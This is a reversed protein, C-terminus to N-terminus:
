KSARAKRAVGLGLLALGVLALSGPEPIGRVFDIALDLEASGATGNGVNVLMQIATVNTFDAGLGAGTTFSAFSFHTVGMVPSGFGLGFSVSMRSMNQNLAGSFVQFELDYAVDNNSATRLGSGAALLNQASSFSTSSFIDTVAQAYTLTNLTNGGDGNWRVIARAAIGDPSSMTFRGGLGPNVRTAVTETPDCFAPLAPDNFCNGPTTRTVYMDRWGGMVGAVAIQSAVGGNAGTGDSLTSQGVSFDDVVFQAQASVSFLAGAAVALFVQKKM